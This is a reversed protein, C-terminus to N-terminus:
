VPSWLLSDCLFLGYGSYLTAHIICMGKEVGAGRSFNRSGKVQIYKNLRCRPVFWKELLLLTPVDRVVEEGADTVDVTMRIVRRKGKQTRYMGIEVNMKSYNNNRIDIHKEGLDLLLKELEILSSITKGNLSEMVDGVRIGHKEAFSGSSVEKVILGDEMGCKLLIRELHAVDLFKIAWLKLGLHPRPICEYKRLFKQWKVIFCSPIFSGESDPTSMGVIKGDFIFLPGELKPAAGAGYTYMFHHREFVSPNSHQVQGYSVRLNSKEDRGLMLVKQGCNANENFLPLEVSIKMKGQFLAIDYHKQCYYLNAKASTQDLLHVTVEADLAYEAKCLWSNLPNKTCILQASTLITGVENEEDWDILFGTCQTLPEGGVSSSLSFVFKGSHLAAMKACEPVDHLYPDALGTEPITADLTPLTMMRALKEKYKAKEQKYARLTESDVPKYVEMNNSDRGLVERPIYPTCLPSSPASSLEEEEEDVKDDGSAEERVDASPAAASSKRTVRKSRRGAAPGPELSESRRRRSSSRTRRSGSAGGEQAATQPM